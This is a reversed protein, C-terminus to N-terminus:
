IGQISNAMWFGPLQLSRVWIWMNSSYFSCGHSFHRCPPLSSDSSFLQDNSVELLTLASYSIMPFLGLHSLVLSLFCRLFRAGLCSELSNSNSGPGVNQEKSQALVQYVIKQINIYQKVYYGRWMVTNKFIAFVWLMFNILKIM